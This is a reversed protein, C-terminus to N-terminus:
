SVSVSRPSARLASPLSLLNEIAASRNQQDYGPQGTRTVLGVVGGVAAVIMALREISGVMRSTESTGEDLWREFSHLQSKGSRTFCFYLMAGAGAAALITEIATSRNNM